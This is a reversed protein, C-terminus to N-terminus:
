TDGFSLAQDNFAIQMAPNKLGFSDLNNQGSELETSIELSYIDLLSNIRATDAQVDYPSIMRWSQVDKQFRITQKGQRIISISALEAPLYQGLRPKKEPAPPEDLWILVSLVAIVILLALNTTWRQRLRKKM